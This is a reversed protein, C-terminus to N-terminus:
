GGTQDPAIEDLREDRVTTPDMRKTSEGNGDRRGKWAYPRQGTSRTGIREHLGNRGDMTRTREDAKDTRKNIRETLDDMRSNMCGMSGDTLAGNGNTRGDRGTTQRM